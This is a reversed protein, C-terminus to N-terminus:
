FSVNRFKRYRGKQVGPSHGSLHHTGHTVPCSTPSPPCQVSWVWPVPRRRRQCRRARCRVVTVFAIHYVCVLVCRCFCTLILTPGHHMAAVAGMAVVLQLPVPQSNRKACVPGSTTHVHTAVLTRVASRVTTHTRRHHLTVVLDRLLFLSHGLPSCYLALCM